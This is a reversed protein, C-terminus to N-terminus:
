SGGFGSHRSENAILGRVFREVEDVARCEAFPFGLVEATNRFAKQAPSLRGKDAKIEIFACLGGPLLLVLDPVGAHVGLALRGPHGQGPGGSRGRARCTAHRAM